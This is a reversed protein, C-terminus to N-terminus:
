AGLQVMLLRRSIAPYSLVIEIWGDEENSRVDFGLSKSDIKTAKVSGGTSGSELGSGGFSVRLNSKTNNKTASATSQNKTSTSSSTSTTASQKKKQVKLRLKEDDSDGGDSDVADKKKKGKIDDESDSDSDIDSDLKTTTEDVGDDSDEEYGEM